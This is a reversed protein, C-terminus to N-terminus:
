AAAGRQMLTDALADALERPDTTHVPWRAAVAAIDAPAVGFDRAARLVALYRLVPNGRPVGGENGPPVGASAPDM